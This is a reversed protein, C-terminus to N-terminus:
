IGYKKSLQIAGAVCLIFVSISRIRAGPMNKLKYLTNEVEALSLELPIQSMSHGNMVYVTYYFEQREFTVVWCGQPHAYAFVQKGPLTTM